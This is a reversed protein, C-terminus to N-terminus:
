TAPCVPGPGGSFKNPVNWLGYWQGGARGYWGAIAHRSCETIQSRLGALAADKTMYSAGM